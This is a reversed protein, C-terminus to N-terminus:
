ENRGSERKAAIARLEKATIADKDRTMADKAQELKLILALAADHQRWRERVPLALNTDILDLDIGAQRADELAKENTVTRSM